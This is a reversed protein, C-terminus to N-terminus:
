SVLQKIMEEKKKTEESTEKMRKRLEKIEELKKEADFQFYSFNICIAFENGVM